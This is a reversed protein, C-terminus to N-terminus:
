RVQVAARRRATRGATDVAAITVVYRGARVRRGLRVRNIGSRGAVKKRAVRRGARTVTVTVKAPASLKFTVVGSRALRPAGVRVPATTPTSPAAPTAPSAPTTSATCGAITVPSSGTATEGTQSTFAATVDYTGCKSPTKLLATAGDLKLTFATTLVNPLNDFVTQISTDPMPTAIGPLKMPGVPTDPFLIILVQALANAASPGGYYATGTLSLTMGFAEVTTAATGIKSAAPCPVSAESPAPCTGLTAFVPLNPSFGAPITVSVTKSATEGSAQTITSTITAAADPTAPDVSFSFQPAYAAGATSAAALATTMATLATAAVRFRADM